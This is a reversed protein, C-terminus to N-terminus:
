SGRNPSFLANVRGDLEPNEDFLKDSRSLILAWRVPDARADRLFVEAGRKVADVLTEVHVVRVKPKAIHDTASLLAAPDAVGWAYLVARAEGKRTMSSEFNNGHVHACRASYLDSSSCQSFGPAIVYRDAWATFQKRDMDPKDEPRALWALFDIASYVLILAPMRLAHGLCLDIAKFHNALNKRLLKDDM